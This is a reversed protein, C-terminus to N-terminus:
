WGAKREESKPLPHLIRVPEHTHPGKEIPRDPTRVTRLLKEMVELSLEKLREFHEKLLTRPKIDRRKMPAHIHANLAIIM